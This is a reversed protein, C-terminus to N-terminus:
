HSPHAQMKACLEGINPTISSLKLRLDKEVDGLRQRYKTKVATLASFGTECLYTTAFPMLSKLALKALDEHSRLLAAWFDVLPKRKFLQQLAGDSSLEILQEQQHFKLNPVPISVDFPNRIWPQTDMPPFYKRLEEALHNLHEIVIRKTEEGLVVENEGLFDHLTPFCLLTNGSVCTAWFRLKKIMAEVKEQTNFVTM